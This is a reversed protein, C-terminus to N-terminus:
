WSTIGRSEEIGKESTRNEVLQERLQRYWYGGAKLVPSSQDFWRYFVQTLLREHDIAMTFLFQHHLGTIANCELLGGTAWMDAASTAFKITKKALSWAFDIM